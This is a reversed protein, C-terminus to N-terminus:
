CFGNYNKNAQTVLKANLDIIFTRIQFPQLTVLWGNEPMLADEEEGGHVAEEHSSVPVENMVNWQLRHLKEVQLNAGLTVEEVSSIDFAKFLGDLEISVPKSMNSRDEQVEFIHELRLLVKNGQNQLNADPWNELTLIHINKPIVQDEEFASFWMNYKSHWEDYTLATPIFSLITDMFLEQAKFRHRQAAAADGGIEFQLWNKGRVVLGQGYASENLPEGVGFADDYLLRRHIMIEMGGDQMSSGGQSRDTLITFQQDSDDDKIYM